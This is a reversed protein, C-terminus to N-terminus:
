EENAAHTKLTEFTWYTLLLTGIIIVIIAAMDLARINFFGTIQILDPGKYRQPAIVITLFALAHICTVLALRKLMFFM